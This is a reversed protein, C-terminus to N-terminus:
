PGRPSHWSWKQKKKGKLTTENASNAKPAVVANGSGSGIPSSALTRPPTAMGSVTQSSAASSSTSAPWSLKELAKSALLDAEDLSSSTLASEQDDNGLAILTTKPLITLFGKAHPNFAKKLNTVQDNQYHTVAIFQTVQQRHMSLHRIFDNEDSQTDLMEVFSKGGLSEAVFVIPQYRCFSDLAFVSSEQSSIGDHHGQQNTLKLKAFSIGTKELIGQYSPSEEPEYLQMRRRQRGGNPYDSGHDLSLLSRKWDPDNLPVEESPMSRDRVSAQWASAGKRKWKMRDLRVLGVAFAWMRRDKMVSHNNQTHCAFSYRLLPFMCRGNKTIIMENRMAHFQTWLAEETLKLVVEGDELLSSPALTDCNTTM